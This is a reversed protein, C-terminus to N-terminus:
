RVKLKNQRWKEQKALQELQPRRVRGPQLAYKAFKQRAATWRKRWAQFSLFLHGMDGGEAWWGPGGGPWVLGTRGLVQFM